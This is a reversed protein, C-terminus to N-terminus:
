RDFAEAVARGPTSNPESQNIERGCLCEQAKCLDESGIRAHRGLALKENCSTTRRSRQLGAEHRRLRSRFRRSAGCYLVRAGACPARRCRWDCLIRGVCCRRSRLRAKWGRWRREWVSTLAMGFAVHRNDRPDLRVIDADRFQQEDRNASALVAYVVSDVPIRTRHVETPACRGFAM